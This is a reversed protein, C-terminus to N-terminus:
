PSFNVLLCSHVCGLRWITYVGYYQQEWAARLSPGYYSCFRLVPRMGSITFSQDIRTVRLAGNGPLSGNCGYLVNRQSLAISVLIVSSVPMNSPMRQGTRM